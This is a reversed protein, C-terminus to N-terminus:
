KATTPTPAPGCVDGFDYTEDLIQYPLYSGVTPRLPLSAHSYLCTLAPRTHPPHVTLLLARLPAPRPATV